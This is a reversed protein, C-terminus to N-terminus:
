VDLNICLGDSIFYDCKLNRATELATNVSFSIPQKKDNLSTLLLASNSNKKRYAKLIKSLPTNADNSVIQVRAQNSKHIAGKINGVEKHHLNIPVTWAMNSSCEEIFISSDEELIVPAFPMFQYRKKMNNLRNKNEISPKALIARAGLARPGFEMEGFCIAIIKGQILLQAIYDHNIDIIHNNTYDHPLHSLFPSAKPINILTNKQRQQKCFGYYAAGIATGSDDSWPAICVNDIGLPKLKQIIYSNAQCNLAAGGSLAISDVTLGQDQIHNIAQKILEYTTKEFARQMSAALHIGNEYQKFTNIIETKFANTSVDNSKIKEAFHLWANKIKWVPFNSIKLQMNEVQIHNLINKEWIPDGLASLAMLKGPGQRGSFGLHYALQHYMSGISHPYKSRAITQMHKGNWFYISICHNEALADSVLVISNPKLNWPLLSYAHSLHHGVFKKPVKKRLYKFNRKFERYLRHSFYQRDLFGYKLSHYLGKYLIKNKINWGEFHSLNNGYKSYIVNLTEHPFADTNKIGTLREEECAFVLKGQKDVVAAAAGHGYNTGLFM